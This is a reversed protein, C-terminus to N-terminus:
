QARRPDFPGRGVGAVAHIIFALARSRDHLTKFQGRRPVAHRMVTDARGGNM